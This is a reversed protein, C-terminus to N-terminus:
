AVKGSEDDTPFHPLHPVLDPPWFEQKQDETVSKAYMKTYFVSVLIAVIGIIYIINRLRLVIQMHRENM